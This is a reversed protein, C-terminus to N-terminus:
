IVEYVQVILTPDTDNSRQTTLMNVFVDLVHGQLARAHVDREHSIAHMHLPESSPALASLLLAMIDNACTTAIYTVYNHILFLCAISFSLIRSRYASAFTFM